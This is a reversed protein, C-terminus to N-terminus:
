TSQLDKRQNCRSSPLVSLVLFLSLNLLCLFHIVRASRHNENGTDSATLMAGHPRWKSEEQQISPRRMTAHDTQPGTVIRRHERPARQYATSSFQRGDQSPQTYEAVRAQFIRTAQEISYWEGRLHCLELLLKDCMIQRAFGCSSAVWVEGHTQM